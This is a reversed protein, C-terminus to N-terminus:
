ITEPQEVPRFDALVVCAKNLVHLASRLSKGIMQVSLDSIEEASSFHEMLYTMVHLDGYAQRFLACLDEAYHAELIEKELQAIFRPVRYCRLEWPASEAPDPEPEEAEEPEGRPATQPQAAM